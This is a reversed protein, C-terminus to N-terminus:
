QPKAAIGYMSTFPESMELSGLSIKGARSVDRAWVTCVQDISEGAGIATVKMPNPVGGEDLGIKLGTNTFDRTL